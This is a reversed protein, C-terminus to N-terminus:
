QRVAQAPATRRSSYSRDSQSVLPLILLTVPQPMGAPPAAFKSKSILNAISRNVYLNDDGKLALLEARAVDGSSKLWLRLLMDATATATEPWTRLVQDVKEQIQSFYAEYRTSHDAPAADRAGADHRVIAISGPASARAVYGTGSLLMRIAAQPTFSGIVPSSQRREAMTANFFVDIGTAISFRELAQALSQSPIEFTITQSSYSKMERAHLGAPSVIVCLLVLLSVCRRNNGKKGALRNQAIKGSLGLLM